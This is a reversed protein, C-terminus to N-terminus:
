PKVREVTREKRAEALRERNRAYGGERLKAADGARSSDSQSYSMVHLQVLDKLAYGRQSWAKELAEWLGAREAADRVATEATRVEDDLEISNNIVAETVKDGRKELKTRVRLYAAARVKDREDRAKDRRSIAMAVGRAAEFYNQPQAVLEDDLGDRDIKLADRLDMFRDSM